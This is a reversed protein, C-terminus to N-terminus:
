WANVYCDSGIQTFAVLNAALATSTLSISTGTVYGGTPNRLYWTCGTGLVATTAGGTADQVLAILGSSGDRLGTVNITRSTITHDLTMKANAISMGVTSWTVTSSDTLPLAEPEVALPNFDNTPADAISVMPIGDVVCTNFSHAVTSKVCTTDGGSGTFYSKQSNNTTDTSVFRYAAFGGTYSAVLTATLATTVAFDLPSNGIATSSTAMPGYGTTLGSIGGSGPCTLVGATTTCTTGDPKVGGLISTTAQPLTYSGGGVSSIVGGSITITTGDPKVVGYAGTTAQSLGASSGAPTLYDTGATAASFTGSSLKALGTIGTPGQAAGLNGTLDSFGLSCPVFSTASGCTGIVQHSTQGTAASFTQTGSASITTPSAALWSPLAWAISGIGAGSGSFTCTTTACSVGPGTFIYAGPVTNISAVGSSSPCPNALTCARSGAVTLATDFTGTGAHLTGNHGGITTGIDLIGAAERSMYLDVTTFNLANLFGFAGGVGALYNGAMETATANYIPLNGPTTATGDDVIAPGSVACTGVVTLTHAVGDARYLKWKTGTPWGFQLATPCSTTVINGSGLPAFVQVNQHAGVPTEQGNPLLATWEYGMNQNPTAGTYVVAPIQYPPYIGVSLNNVLASDHIVTDGMDLEGHSVAPPQMGSTDIQGVGLANTNGSLPSLLGIKNLISQSGLVGAGGAFDIGGDGGQRASLTVGRGHLSIGFATLNTTLFNNLGMSLTNTAPQWAIQATGGDLSFLNYPSTNAAGGMAAPYNGVTFVAGNNMPPTDMNILGNNPGTFTMWVPATLTGGCPAYVGCPTFLSMSFPKANSNWGDGRLYTALGSSNNSDVNSINFDYHEAWGEYVPYFPNETIDGDGWVVDNPELTQTMGIEPRRIEAGPYVHYTYFSSPLAITCGTTSGAAVTQKWNFTQYGSALTVNTATGNFASNACGAIIAQPQLNWFLNFNNAAAPATMNGAGDSTVTGLNQPGQFTNLYPISRLPPTLTQGGRNTALVIHHADTAGYAYIPVRLGNIALNQDLSLYQGAFGGQWLTSEFVRQVPHLYTFTIVQSGGSAAAVNTITVHEPFNGSGLWALGTVFPVGTELTVVCSGSVPTLTGGPLSCGSGSRDMYGWSTTPTLTNSVPYTFAWATGLQTAGGTIQGTIGAANGKTINLLFTGDSTQTTNTGSDLTATGSDDFSAPTAGFPFTITTATRGSLRAGNGNFYTAISFGSLDVVQNPTFNNTTTLTANTGDLVVHTVHSSIGESLTPATDGTGTTSAITGVFYTSLQGGELTLLTQGEGSIDAAGGVDWGYGYILGFDGTGYKHAMPIFAQDLGRHFVNFFNEQHRCEGWGLTGGYNYSPTSCEADTVTQIPITGTAPIYDFTTSRLDQAAFSQFVNGRTGGLSPLNYSETLTSNARQDVLTSGSPPLVVTETSTSNPPTAVTCIASVCYASGFTSAVGGLVDSNLQGNTALSTLNKTTTNFKFYQDSTFAGPVTSAIQVSFSPPVSGGGGGGGPNPIVTIPGPGPAGTPPGAYILGPTVYANTSATCYITGTAPSVAAQATGQCAPNQSPNQTWQVAGTPFVSCVWPYTDSASNNEYMAAPTCPLRPYGLGSVTVNPPAAYADYSFFNQTINTYPLDLYTASGGTNQVDIRYRTNSPSMTAPNPIVPPFGNVYQVAGRKVPIVIPATSPSGGQVTYTVPVNSVDTVTFVLQGTLLNTNNDTVHTGSVVITAQSFATVSSAILVLLVAAIRKM